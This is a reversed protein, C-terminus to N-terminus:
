LRFYLRMSFLKELGINNCLELSKNISFEYGIVPFNSKATFEVICARAKPNPWPHKEM